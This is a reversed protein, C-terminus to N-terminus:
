DGDHLRHYWEREEREERDEDATIADIKTDHWHDYEHKIRRAVEDAIAFSKDLCLRDVSDRYWATYPEDSRYCDMFKWTGDKREEDKVDTEGYVNLDYYRQAAQLYIAKIQEELQKEMPRIVEDQIKQQFKKQREDFWANPDQKEMTM